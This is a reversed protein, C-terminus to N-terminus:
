QCRTVWRRIAAQNSERSPQTESVGSNHRHLRETIDDRASSQQAHSHEDDDAYGQDGQSWHLLWDLSCRCVYRLARLQPFM